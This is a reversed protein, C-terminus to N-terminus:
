LCVSIDDWGYLYKLSLTGVILPDKIREVYRWSNEPSSCSAVKELLYDPAGSPMMKDAIELADMEMGHECLEDIVCCYFHGLSKEDWRYLNQLAESGRSKLKIPTGLAAFNIEENNTLDINERCFIKYFIEFHKRQQRIWAGLPTSDKTCQLVHNILEPHFEDSPSKLLTMLISLNPWKEGLYSAFHYVMKDEGNEGCKGTDLNETKMLTKDAFCSENIKGAVEEILISDLDLHFLDSLQSATKYNHNYFVLDRILEDPRKSLVGFYTPLKSDKIVETVRSIYDLFVSICDFSGNNASELAGQIGDIMEKSSEPDCEDGSPISMLMKVASGLSAKATMLRVQESANQAFKGSYLAFADAASSDNGNVMADMLSIVRAYSQDEESIIKELAIKFLQQAHTNSITQFAIDAAVAGNCEGVLDATTVDGKDSSLVKLSDDVVKGAQSAKVLGSNLVNGFEEKIKAALNYDRFQIALALLDNPDALLTRVFVSPLEVDDSTVTGDKYLADAFLFRNQAEKIDARLRALAKITKENGGSNDDSIDSICEKLVSLLTSCKEASAIFDGTTDNKLFLTCFMEQLLVVKGWCSEISKVKAPIDEMKLCGLYNGDESMMFMFVTHLVEYSQMLTVDQSVANAANKNPNNKIHDIAESPSINEICKSLVFPLSHKPTLKMVEGTLKWKDVAEDSSFNEYKMIQEASWRSVDLVYKLDNCAASFKDDGEETNGDNKSLPLIEKWLLNILANKYEANEPKIDWGALLLLPRLREFPEICLKAEDFRGEKLLSIGCLLAHEMFHVKSCYVYYAYHSWFKKVSEQSYGNKLFEFSIPLFANGNRERTEIVKNLYMEEAKCYSKFLM